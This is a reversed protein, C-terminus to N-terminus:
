PLGNPREKYLFICHVIGVVYQIASEIKESSSTPDDLTADRSSLSTKQQLEPPFGDWSEWEPCISTIVRIYGEAAEERSLYGFNNWIAWRRKVEDSREFVSPRESPDCKGLLLQMRYAYLQASQEVGLAKSFRLNSSIFFSAKTFRFKLQSNM